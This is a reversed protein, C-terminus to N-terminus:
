KKSEVIQKLLASITENTKVLLDIVNPPVAYYHDAQVVGINNTSGGEFIVTKSEAEFLWEISVNFVNVVRNILELTPKTENSEYRSYTSQEMLLKEGMETQNLNNEKRIVRLKEGFNMSYRKEFKHLYQMYIHLM